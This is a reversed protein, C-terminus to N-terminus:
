PPDANSPRAPSEGPVGADMLSPGFYMRAIGAQAAAAECLGCPRSTSYLVAGPLRQRGLKRQADRIAEREAHADPNNNKVVRSPGQGVLAQDLVVVAGYPQDGWS